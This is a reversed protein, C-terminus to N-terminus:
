CEQEEAAKGQQLSRLMPEGPPLPPPPLPFPRVQEKEAPWPSQIKLRDLISDYWGADHSPETLASM